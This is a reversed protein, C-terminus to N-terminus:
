SELTKEVTKIKRKVDPRDLAKSINGLLQITKLLLPKVRILSEDKTAEEIEKMLPKLQSRVINTARAWNPDEWEEAVRVAISDLDM